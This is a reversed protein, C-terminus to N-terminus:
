DIHEIKILADALGHAYSISAFATFYDKKALWDKSDAAYMKALEFVASKDADLKAASLKKATLSFKDIDKEIRAEINNDMADD